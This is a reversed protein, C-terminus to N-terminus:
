RRATLTSSGRPSTAREPPCLYLGVVDHLKEVFQPDKSIKFTEVLHPKLGHANWIRGVTSASVGAVPALSRRSWHTGTGAPPPQQTVRLVEAIKEPAIEPPRGPRPLDRLLGPIGNAEFRDLWTKVTPKSVGVLACIEESKQGAASALVIRCREVVRQETTRARVLAELEARDAESLQIKRIPRPMYWLRVDAM